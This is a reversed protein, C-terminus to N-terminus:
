RNLEATVLNNRRVLLLGESDTNDAYNTRIKELALLYCDPCVGYTISKFHDMAEGSWGVSSKAKRCTCCVTKM